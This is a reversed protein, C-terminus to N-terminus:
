RSSPRRASSHAPLRPVPSAGGEPPETLVGTVPWTPAASHHLDLLEVLWRRASRDDHLKGSGVTTVLSGSATDVTVVVAVDATAALDRVRQAIVHVIGPYRHMADAGDIAEVIHIREVRRSSMYAVDAHGGACSGDLLEIRVPIARHVTIGTLDPVNEVPSCTGMYQAYWGRMAHFCRKLWQVHRANRVVAVARAVSADYAYSVCDWM